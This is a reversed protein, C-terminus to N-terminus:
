LAKDRDHCLVQAARHAAHSSTIHQRCTGNAEICHATMFTDEDAGELAFDSLGHPPSEHSQKQNSEQRLVGQPCQPLNGSVVVGACNRLQNHVKCVMATGQGGQWTLRCSHWTSSAAHSASARNPPSGHRGVQLTRM